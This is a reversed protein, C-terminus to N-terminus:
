WDCLECKTHRYDILLQNKVGKNNVERFPLITM